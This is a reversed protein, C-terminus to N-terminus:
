AYGLLELIKQYNTDAQIREMLAPDVDKPSPASLTDLARKELVMVVADGTVNMNFPWNDAYNPDFEIELHECVERLIRDPDTAFDECRFITGKIAQEALHLYGRLFEEVSIHEDVNTERCYSQWQCIPHRVVFIERLDFIKAMRESTYMEYSPTALFPQAIFDLHSWNSVVLTEGREELAVHARSMIQEFTINKKLLIEWGSEDFLAYRNQAQLLPSFINMGLPHMDTLMSVKDMAGLCKLFQAFSPNGLAHILRFVPRHPETESRGQARREARRAPEEDCWKRWMGRYANELDRTHDQQDCLPSEEMTKRLSQRITRLREPDNALAVAKAVYDDVDEGALDGLGVQHLLSATVRAAHRDGLLAIIPVAMWLAECSTTTGNYPFPDVGIDIKDYLRLHENSGLRGVFELRDDSIGYEAFQATFREYTGKDSLSVSKLLLRSGEVAKLIRAWAEITQPSLKSANNFSGFTIYGNEESPPVTSEDISSQPTYCTFCKPLRWLTESHIDDAPGEPDTIPDVIRYDIVDLGTTNPYGIWTAQIPAPRLAMADLRNGATHGGLDVLIDIEDKRVLAAIEAASMKHIQRWHNTYSQLRKTIGDPTRVNAYCFIDFNVSDHQKLASEIFYSVAHGFLDASVYGIRLRREPSPDNPYVETGVMNPETHWRAWNRHEDYLQNPSLSGLYNMYFLMNSHAGTYTPDMELAKHYYQISEEAKAMEMALIGLNNYVYSPNEERKACELYTEEAEDFKEIDRLMIALNNLAGVDNPALEIYRRYSDAAEQHRRISQYFGAAGKLVVTSRPAILLAEKYHEEAADFLNQERLVSGLESLLSPAHPHRLLASRYVEEADSYRHLMRLSEALTLILDVRTPDAESAIRAYKEAKEYQTKRILIKALSNNADPHQPQLDLARFFAREAKNPQKLREQCLGLNVCADAHQPALSLAYNFARIAEEDSGLAVLANGLLFHAESQHENLSLSHRLYQIATAPDKTELAIAGAFNQLKVNQQDADAAKQAEKLADRLQGARYYQIARKQANQAIETPSSGQNRTNDSM